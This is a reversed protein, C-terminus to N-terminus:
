LGCMWQWLCTHTLTHTHTHTNTVSVYWDMNVGYKAGGAMITLAKYSTAPVM